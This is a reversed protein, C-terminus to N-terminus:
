PESRQRCATLAAHLTAGSAASTVTLPPPSLPTLDCLLSSCGSGARRSSLPPSSTTSVPHLHRRPTNYRLFSDSHSEVAEQQSMCVVCSSCPARFTDLQLRRFFAASGEDVALTAAVGARIADEDRGVVAFHTRTRHATLEVAEQQSMCVVAGVVGLWDTHVQIDHEALTSRISRM